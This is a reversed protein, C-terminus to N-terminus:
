QPDYVQCYAYTSSTPNAINELKSCDHNVRHVALFGLAAMILALGLVGLLQIRDRLPGQPARSLILAILTGIILGGVHGRWDINSIAFTFILNAVITVAIGNTSLNRHRAIVYLAGFLGFIAGSAGAATENLPGLAVSLISGGVGALVYMATFRLRGLAAELPPGFIFLAYMNFGIHFIGFHLFAATFIRWWQGHAVAPPILALHNFLTSSGSGNIINIGTATTAIFVAVNVAILSRTVLGIADGPRVRGGYVTRAQRGSKAGERICEPCQFGVSAPTMCRPCIPRDCRVCHVGTAVDPHRYCYEQGDAGAPGDGGAGEDAVTDDGPPTV